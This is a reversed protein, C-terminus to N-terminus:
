HTFSAIAAFRRNLIQILSVDVAAVSRLQQLIEPSDALGVGTHPLKGLAENAAERLLSRFDILHQLPVNPVELHRTQVRHIAINEPERNKLHKM